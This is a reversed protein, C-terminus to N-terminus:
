SLHSGLKSKSIKDKETSYFNGSNHSNFFLSDVMLSEPGKFKVKKHM